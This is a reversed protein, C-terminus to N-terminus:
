RDDPLEKVWEREMADAVLKWDNAMRRAHEPHYPGTAWIMPGGLHGSVGVRNAAAWEAPTYERGMPNDDSM